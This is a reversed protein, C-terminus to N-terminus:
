EQGNNTKSQVQFLDSENCQRLSLWPIITVIFVKIRWTLCLSCFVWKLVNCPTKCVCRSNDVSVLYDLNQQACKYQAPSCVPTNLYRTDSDISLLSLKPQNYPRMPNLMLLKNDFYSFVHTALASALKKKVKKHDCFKVRSVRISWEVVVLMLLM